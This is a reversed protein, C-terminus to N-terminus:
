KVQKLPDILRYSKNNQRRSDNIRQVFQHRFLHKDGMSAKSFTGDWGKFLMTIGTPHKSSVLLRIVTWAVDSQAPITLRSDGISLVGSKPDCKVNLSKAYASYDFPNGNLTARYAYIIDPRDKFRDGRAFRAIRSEIDQPKPMKSMKERFLDWTCTCAKTTADFLADITKPRYTTLSMKEVNAWSVEGEYKTKAENWLHYAEEHIQKCNKAQHRLYAKFQRLIQRRMGLEGYKKDSVDEALLKRLEIEAPGPVPVASYFFEDKSLEALRTIISLLGKPSSADLKGLSNWVEYYGALPSTSKLAERVDTTSTDNKMTM